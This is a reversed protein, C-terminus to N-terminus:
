NILLFHLYAIAFYAIAGLLPAFLLLMLFGAGVWALKYAIERKM